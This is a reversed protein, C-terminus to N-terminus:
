VVAREVRVEISDTRGDIYSEAEVEYWHGGITKPAYNDEWRLTLHCTTNQESSYSINMMGREHDDREGVKDYQFDWDGNYDSFMKAEEYYRMRLSESSTTVKIYEEDEYSRVRGEGEVIEYKEVPFYREHGELNPLILEIESTENQELHLVFEQNADPTNIYEVSVYISAVILVMVVAMVALYKGVRKLNHEKKYEQLVDVLYYMSLVVTPILIFPLVMFLFCTADLIAGTMWRMFFFFVLIVLFSSIGGIIAKKRDQDIRYSDISYKLLILLTISLLFVILPTFIMYVSGMM